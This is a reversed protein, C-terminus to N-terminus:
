IKVDNQIENYVEEVTFDKEKVNCCYNCIFKIDEFSVKAM